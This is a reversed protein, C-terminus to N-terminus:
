CHRREQLIATPPLNSAELLTHLRVGALRIISHLALASEVWAQSIHYCHLLTSGAGWTAVELNTLLTARTLSSSAHVPLCAVPGVFTASVLVVVSRPYTSPPISLSFVLSPRSIHLLPLPSPSLNSTSGFTCKTPDVLPWSEVDVSRWSQVWACVV